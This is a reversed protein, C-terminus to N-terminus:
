RSKARLPRDQPQSCRPPNAEMMMERSRNSFPVIIVANSVRDGPYRRSARSRLGRRHPSRCAGRVVRRRHCERPSSAPFRPRRPRTDCVRGGVRTCSRWRCPSHLARGLVPYGRGSRCCSRNRVVEHVSYGGAAGRTYSLPLADAEWASCPPEIGRVRELTFSRPKM